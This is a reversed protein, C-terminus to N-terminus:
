TESSMNHLVRAPMYSFTYYFLCYAIKYFSQVLDNRHCARNMCHSFVYEFKRIVPVVHRFSLVHAYSKM